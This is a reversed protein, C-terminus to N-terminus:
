LSVSRFDKKESCMLFNIQGICNEPNV